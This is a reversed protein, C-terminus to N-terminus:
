AAVEGFKTCCCYAWSPQLAEDLEQVGDKFEYVWKCVHDESFCTVM